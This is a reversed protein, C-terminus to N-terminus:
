IITTCIACIYLLKGTFKSSVNKQFLSIKQAKQTCIMKKKHIHQLYTSTTIEEFYHTKRQKLRFYDNKRSKEFFFARHQYFIKKTVLPHLDHMSLKKLFEVWIYRDVM